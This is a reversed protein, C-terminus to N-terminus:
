QTPSETDKAYNEVFDLYKNLDYNYEANEFSDIYNKLTSFREEGNPLMRCISLFDYEKQLYNLLEYISLYVLKDRLLN